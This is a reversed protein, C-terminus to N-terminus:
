RRDLSYKGPGAVCLVLLGGIISINKYFNIMNMLREMGSMDWFPHGILATGLTYLALLAALPRTYFGLVIAIGVFLEMVVAIGAALPPLPAGVHAMYAVTGQFGTIKSWGFIVFLLMLLVRAVLLVGDKQNDFLTYRM